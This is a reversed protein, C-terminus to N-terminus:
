TGSGDDTGGVKTAPPDVTNFRVLIAKAVPVWAAMLFAALILLTTLFPDLPEFGLRNRVAPYGVLLLAGAIHWAGIVLFPFLWDREDKPSRMYTLLLDTAGVVAAAVAAILIWVGYAVAQQGGFFFYVGIISAIIVVEALLLLRLIKM